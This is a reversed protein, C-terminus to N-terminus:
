FGVLMDYVDTEFDMKINDPLIEKLAVEQACLVGGVQIDSPKVEGYGLHEGEITVVVHGNL